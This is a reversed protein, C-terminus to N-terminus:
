DSLDQLADPWSTQRDQPFDCSWNEDSVVHSIDVEDHCVCGLICVNNQPVREQQLRLGTQIIAALFYGEESFFYGAEDGARSRLYVEDHHCAPSHQLRPTLVYHRAHGMEMGGSSPFEHQAGDLAKDFSM